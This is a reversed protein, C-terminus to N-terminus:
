IRVPIMTEVSNTQIPQITSMTETKHARKVSNNNNSGWCGLATIFGIIEIWIAPQNLQLM